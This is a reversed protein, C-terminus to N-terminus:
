QLYGLARLKELEQPDVREATGTGLRRDRHSEWYSDISERLDKAIAPDSELEGDRFRSRELDLVQWGHRSPGTGKYKGSFEAVWPRSMSPVGSTVGERSTYREALIGPEDRAALYSVAPKQGKGYLLMFDFLRRLTMTEQISGARLEPGRIFLPVHLLSQALGREHGIYGREGLEEGHDSTVIVVCDEGLREILWPLLEALQMDMWRLEADYLDNLSESKGEPLRAWERSIRRHSSHRSVVHKPKVGLSELAQPPPNYPSHADLMNVFLFVPRDTRPLSRMVIRKIGEADVYAVRWGLDESVRQLLPFARDALSGLTSNFRRHHPSLIRHFGVDTAPLAFNNATVALCHYGEDALLAPLWDLGPLPSTRFQTRSFHVGHSSVTKGTLISAHSPSTWGAAAVAREAVVGAEAWRELSPMTDRWYGYRALHDARVTDLVILVVAPRDAVPTPSLRSASRGYSASHLCFWVIAVVSLVLPAAQVGSRALSPRPRMCVLALVLTVPILTLEAVAVSGTKLAEIIIATALGVILSPYVAVGFVQLFSWPGAHHRRLWVRTCVWVGLGAAVAPASWAALGLSPWAPAMDTLVMLLALAATLLSIVEAELDLSRFIRTVVAGALSALATVCLALELETLALGAFHRPFAIMEDSTVLSAFVELRLLVDLTWVGAMTAAFCTLWFITLKKYRGAEPM